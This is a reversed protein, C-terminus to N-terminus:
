LLNKESQEVDSDPGGKPELLGCGACQVGGTKVGVDEGSAKGCDTGGLMDQFSEWRSLREELAPNLV